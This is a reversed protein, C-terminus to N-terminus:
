PTKPVRRATHGRIVADGIVGAWRAPDRDPDSEGRVVVEGAPETRILKALDGPGAVWAEDFWVTLSM